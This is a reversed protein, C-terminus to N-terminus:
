YPEYELVEENIENVKRLKQRFVKIPEQATVKECEIKDFYWNRNNYSNYIIWFADNEYRVEQVYKYYHEKPIGCIKKRGCGKHSEEREPHFVNFKPCGDFIMFYTNGLVIFIVDAGVLFKKEDKNTLGCKEQNVRLAFIQVNEDKIEKKINEKMFDEYKKFADNLFKNTAFISVVQFFIYMLVGVGIFLINMTLISIIASFMLFINLIVVYSKYCQFGLFFNKFSQILLEKMCLLFM